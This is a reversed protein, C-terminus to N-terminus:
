CTILMGKSEDRVCILRVLITNPIEYAFIHKYVCPCVYQSMMYKIKNM